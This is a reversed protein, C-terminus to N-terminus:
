DEGVRRRGKNELDVGMPNQSQQGAAQWGKVVIPTLKTGVLRVLSRWICERGGEGGRGRRGGRERMRIKERGESNAQDPLM